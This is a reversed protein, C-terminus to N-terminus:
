GLCPRSESLDRSKDLTKCHSELIMHLRHLQERLPERERIYELTVVQPDTRALVFDLLDYDRAQLPEHADVLRGARLRPGSVHVQVVRALPLRNVYDRVVMGLVAASVQAHGM